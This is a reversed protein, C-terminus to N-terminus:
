RQTARWVKLGLILLVQAATLGNALMIPGSMQLYGYVFWLGVGTGFLSLMVWSLEEGGVRWTAFWKRPL